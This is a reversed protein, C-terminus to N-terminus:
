WGATTTGDVNVNEKWGLDTIELRVGGRVGEGNASWRMREPEAGAAGVVDQRQINLHRTLVEKRRGVCEWEVEGQQASSKETVPFGAFRGERTSVFRIGTHPPPM